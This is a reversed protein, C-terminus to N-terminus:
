VAENYLNYTGQNSINYVSQSSLNYVSQNSLNYTSQSSLNYIGQSIFSYAGQGSLNYTAQSSLNFIGQNSFNYVSQSLTNYVSQSSTNYKSQTSTDYVKYFPNNCVSSYLTCSVDGFFISNDNKDCLRAYVGNSSQDEGNNSQWAVIYTGNSLGIVVPLQHDVTTDNNVQQDASFQRVGSLDYKQMYINYKTAPAANSDWAVLFGDNGLSAVYPSGQNGATSVSAVLETGVRNGVADFRQCLAGYGNGDGGVSNYCIIFGGNALAAITPRYQDGNFYTNVQFETNFRTGDLNFMQAYIGKGWTDQNDSYWSVVFKGNLLATVVPGQQASQYYTNVQFEPKKVTNDSNYVQAFIGQDDGDQGYSQWVIVYGGDALDAINSAQQDSTVNVNVLFESGSRTCNAQYRQAYVEKGTSIQGSSTWSIIFGGDPLSAICPGTQDSSVYTNVVFESYFSNANSSFKRAGIGFGSGDNGQSQWTFVFSGDTLLAINAADQDGITYQNILTDKVPSSGTSLMRSPQRTSIWGQDELQLGMSPPILCSLLIFVFVNLITFKPNLGINVRPPKKPQNLSAASSDSNVSQSILTYLRSNLWAQTIM